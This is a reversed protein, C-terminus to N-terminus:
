IGDLALERGSHDKVTLKVSSVDTGLQKVTGAVLAQAVKPIVRLDSAFAMFFQKTSGAYTALSSGVCDWALKEVAALKENTAALVNGQETVKAVKEGTEYSKKVCDAAGIWMMAASLADKLEPKKKIASEAATKIEQPGIKGAAELSKLEAGLETKVLNASLNAGKLEPAIFSLAFYTLDVVV